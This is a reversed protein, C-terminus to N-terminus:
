NSRRLKAKSRLQQQKKMTTIIRINILLRGDDPIAKSSIEEDDCGDSIDHELVNATDNVCVYSVIVEHSSAHNDKGFPRYEGSNTSYVSYNFLDKVFIKIFDSRQSIYHSDLTYCM